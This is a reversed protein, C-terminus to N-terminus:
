DPIPHNANIQRDLFLETYARFALVSRENLYTDVEDLFIIQYTIGAAPISLSSYGSSSGSFQPIAAVAATIQNSTCIDPLLECAAIQASKQISEDRKIVWVYTKSNGLTTELESFRESFLEIQADTYVDQHLGLAGSIIPRLRPEDAFIDGASLTAYFTLVLSVYVAPDIRFPRSFFRGVINTNAM